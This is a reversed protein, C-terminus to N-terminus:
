VDDGLIEIIATRAMRLRAKVLMLTRITEPKLSSARSSSTFTQCYQFPWKQCALAYTCVRPTGLEDVDRIVNARKQNRTSKQAVM